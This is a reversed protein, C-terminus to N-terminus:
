ENNQRRKATAIVDKDAIVEGLGLRHSILVSLDVAINEIQEMTQRRNEETLRENEAMAEALLRAKEAERDAMKKDLTEAAKHLNQLAEANVERLANEYKELTEEAAQRFSEAATLYDDIKRQRRNLIDTIKPVIMKAMILWMLTFCVVLWFAQSPFMSFDLQPM